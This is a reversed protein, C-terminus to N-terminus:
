LNTDNITFSGYINGNSLNYVIVDSRNPTIIQSFSSNAAITVPINQGSMFVILAPVVFSNPNIVTLDIVSITRTFTCSGRPPITCKQGRTCSCDAPVPASVPQASATDVYFTFATVLVLAVSLMAQMLRKM